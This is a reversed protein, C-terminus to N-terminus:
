YGISRSIKVPYSCWASPSINIINDAYNGDSRIETFPALVGQYNFPIRNIYFTVENTSCKNNAFVRSFM